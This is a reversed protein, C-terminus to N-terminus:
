RKEGKPQSTRAGRGNKPQFFNSISDKDYMTKINKDLTLDKTLHYDRSRLIIHAYRGVIGVKGVRHHLWEM